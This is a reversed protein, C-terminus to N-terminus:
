AERAQAGHEGAQRAWGRGVVQEVVGVVGVEVGAEGARLRPLPPAAEAAAEGGAAAARLSTGGRSSRRARAARGGRPPLVGLYLTRRANHSPPHAPTTHARRDLQRATAAARPEMSQLAPVTSREARRPLACIESQQLLAACNRSQVSGATCRM